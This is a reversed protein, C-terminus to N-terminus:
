NFQHFSNKTPQTARASVAVFCAPMILTSHKNASMLNIVYDDSITYCLAKNGRTGFGSTAATTLAFRQVHQLLKVINVHLNPGNHRARCTQTRVPAQSNMFITASVFCGVSVPASLMCKYMCLLLSAKM